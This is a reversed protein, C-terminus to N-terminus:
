AARAAAWFLRLLVLGSGIGGLGVLVTKSRNSSSWGVYLYFASVLILLIAFVGLM